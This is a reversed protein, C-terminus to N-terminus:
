HEKGHENIIKTLKSVRRIATKVEDPYRQITNQSMQDSKSIMYLNDLKCNLPNGDKFQINHGEPIPGNKEIWIIRHKLDWGRLGERVKILIYGDRDIRESGLPRYNPPVTGKKFRTAKTRDIAEQTMYEVQKKGKNKPINGKLILHKRGPHDERMISEYSYQKLAEPDKEIGLKSARRYIAGISFGLQKAIDNARVTPFLERITADDEPTFVDYFYVKLLGLVSAKAKVAAVTKTPFQSYLKKGSTTPYIEKLLDLEEQSWTRKM